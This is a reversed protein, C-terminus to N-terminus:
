NGNTNEGTSEKNQTQAADKKAGTYPRGALYGLLLEARSEPTAQPLQQPILDHLEACHQKTWIHAYKANKVKKEIKEDPSLSIKKAWAQYVAARQATIDLAKMPSAIAAAYAQNGILRGPLEGKRESECYGIHIEDLAACFQGLKYALENMYVEKKRGLKYLLLGMATIACLANQHYKITNKTKNAVSELLRSYQKLLRQLLRRAFDEHKNDALFLSMVEAFPVGPIDSSKLDTSRSYQKKFLLAFQKPSIAFPPKHIRKKDKIFPLKIDPRNKGAQCWVNAASKLHDLSQSTSFIAKQVGHSIKRIIMFDVQEIIEVDKGEYLNFIEEAEQEYDEEDELLESEHSLLRVAKIDPQARCFGLLLDLDGKGTEGPLVDWTTGQEKSNLYRLASALEDALDVSVPMSEAAEKGYRRYTSIDKKRSFTFVIGLHNCKETPFTDAVLVSDPKGSIACIGTQQEGGVADRQKLVASIASEWHKNAASCSNSNAFDILLTPPKPMEGKENLSENKGLNAFMILAALDLLKKNPNSECRQWLKEDLDRLLALGNDNISLFKSFLDAVIVSKDKLGKRFIAERRILKERYNKDPWEQHSPFDIPASRLKKLYNLHEKDPPNKHDKRWQQYEKVGEPRLPFKLKVAPFQNHNGNGQTWYNEHKGETLYELESICGQDKESALVVRLLNSKGPETLSKHKVQLLNQDLEAIGNRVLALENLM